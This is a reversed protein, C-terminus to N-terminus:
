RQRLQAAIQHPEDVLGHAAPRLREDEDVVAGLAVRRPRDARQRLQPLFPLLSPPLSLSSASRETGGWGGAAHRPPAAPPARRTAVRRGRLRRRESRTACSGSRRPAGCCSARWARASARPSSRATAAASPSIPLACTQVGTVLKDRIGDEAQFFFFFM